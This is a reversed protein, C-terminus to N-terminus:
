EDGRIIERAQEKTIGIATAIINVAQNETLKGEAIKEIVVILSQMQAGNLAKGTAEEANDITEQLDPTEETTDDSQMGTEFNDNNASQANFMAMEADQKQKQINEFEDIDGFIELLKKTTYEDGLHQSSAVVNSIEEQRSITRDRTFHFPENEDIGYVRLLGQVFKRVQKEVENCKQELRTYASEIEVTTVAGSRLSKIDAGMYDYIIQHELRTLMAERAQYQAEIQKPEAIQHEENHIIKQIYMDRLFRMDDEKDMGDYGTLVWYILNQVVDNTFGSLTLDYSLLTEENGKISSQRNIYYLPVIPLESYNESEVIYDGQIENSVSKVKYPKLGEILAMGSKGSYNGNEDKNERYKRTGELTYLVAIRPKDPALRWYSVGAKIKGDTEDQMEAFYPKTNDSGYCLPVVGDELALGYSVGDNASYKLADQLVNDFNSGGLRKKVEPNTFSIGNGLLYGVMETTLVFHWNATLKHNPSYKDLIAHGNADYIWKQIKEQYPDKHRYFEGAIQGTKFQESSEHDAIVRLVFDGIANVDDGVALFDQYTLM